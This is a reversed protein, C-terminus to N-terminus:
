EEWGQAIWPYERRLSAGVYRALGAWESPELDGREVRMSHWADLRVLGGAVAGRVLKRAADPDVSPVRRLSIRAIYTRESM